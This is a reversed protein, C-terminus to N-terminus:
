VGIGHLLAIRQRLAIYFYEAVQNSDMNYKEVVKQEHLGKLYIDDFIANAITETQDLPPSIIPKKETSNISVIFEKLAMIQVLNINLNNKVVTCNKEHLNIIAQELEPRNDPLENQLYSLLTYVVVFYSDMDDSFHKEAQRKLESYIFPYNMKLTVWKERTQM